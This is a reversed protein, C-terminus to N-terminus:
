AYRGALGIFASYFNRNDNLQQGTEAREEARTEARGPIRPVTFSDPEKATDATSEIRIGETGLAEKARSTGPESERSAFGYRRSSIWTLFLPISTRKPYERLNTSVIPRTRRCCRKKRPRPM